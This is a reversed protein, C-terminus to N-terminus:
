LTIYVILKDLHEIHIASKINNNMASGDDSVVDLISAVNQPKKIQEENNYKNIKSTLYDIEANDNFKVKQEEIYQKRFVPDQELKESLERRTHKVDDISKIEFDIDDINMNLEPLLAEAM